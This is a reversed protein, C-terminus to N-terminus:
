PKFAGWSCWRGEKLFIAELVGVNLFAPKHHSCLDELHVQGKSSNPAALHEKSLSVSNNTKDKLIPRPPRKPLFPTAMLMTVSSSLRVRLSM